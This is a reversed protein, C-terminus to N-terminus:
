YYIKTLQLCKKKLVLYSIIDGWCTACFRAKPKNETKSDAMYGCLEDWESEIECYSCEFVSPKQKKTGGNWNASTFIMCGM